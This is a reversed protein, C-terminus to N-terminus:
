HLITPEVSLSIFLHLKETIDQKAANLTAKLFIMM